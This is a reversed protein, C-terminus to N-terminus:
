RGSPGCSHTASDRVGVRRERDMSRCQARRSKADRAPSVDIASADDMWFGNVQPVRAFIDRVHTMTEPTIEVTEDDIRVDELPHAVCRRFDDLSGIDEEAIWRVDAAHLFKAGSERKSMQTVFLMQTGPKHKFAKEERDVGFWSHEGSVVHKLVGARADMFPSADYEHALANHARLLALTAHLTREPVCDNVVIGYTQPFTSM